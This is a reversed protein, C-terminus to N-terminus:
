QRRRAAAAIANPAIRNASGVLKAADAFIAALLWDALGAVLVALLQTGGTPVVSIALGLM